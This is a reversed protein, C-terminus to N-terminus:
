IQPASYDNTVHIFGNSETVKASALLNNSGALPSLPATLAPIRLTSGPNHPGPNLSALAQETTSFHRAIDGLNQQGDYVIAGTQQGYKPLSKALDQEQKQWNASVLKDASAKITRYKAFDISFSIAVTALPIIIIAPLIFRKQFLKSPWQQRRRAFDM